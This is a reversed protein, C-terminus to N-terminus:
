AEAFYKQVRKQRRLTTLVSGNLVSFKMISFKFDYILLSKASFYYFVYMVFGRLSLILITSANLFRGNREYCDVM